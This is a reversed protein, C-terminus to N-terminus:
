LNMPQVQDIRFFAAPYAPVRVRNAFAAIAAKLSDPQRQQKAGRPNRQETVVHLKGAPAFVPVDIVLLVIGYRNAKL